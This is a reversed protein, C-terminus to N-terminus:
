FNVPFKPFEHFNVLHVQLETSLTSITERQRQRSNETIASLSITSGRTHANNQISGIEVPVSIKMPVPRYRLRLAVDIVTCEESSRASQNSQRCERVLLASERVLPRFYLYGRTETFFFAGKKKKEFDMRRQLIM